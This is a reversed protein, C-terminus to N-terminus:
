NQMCGCCVQNGLAAYIEALSPRKTGDEVVCDQVLRKVKDSADGDVSLPLGEGVPDAGNHIM